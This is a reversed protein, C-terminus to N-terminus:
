LVEAKERTAATLEAIRQTTRDFLIEEDRFEPKSKPALGPSFHLLVRVPVQPDKSALGHVVGPPLVVVSGSQVDVVQDDLVMQGEGNLIEYIEHTVGHVHVPSDTIDLSAIHACDVVETAGDSKTFERREDVMFGKVGCVSVDANELSTPVQTVVAGNGMPQSRVLYGLSRSQQASSKVRLQEKLATREDDNLETTREAM